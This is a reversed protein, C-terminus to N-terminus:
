DAYSNAGGLVANAMPTTAFQDNGGIFFLNYAQACQFLLRQSIPNGIDSPEVTAM